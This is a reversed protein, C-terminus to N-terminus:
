RHGRLSAADVAADGRRGEAGGGAVLVRACADWGYGGGAGCDGWADGTWSCGCGGCGCAGEEAIGAGDGCGEGRGAVRGDVGVSL